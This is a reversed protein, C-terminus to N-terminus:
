GLDIAIEDLSEEDITASSFLVHTCLDTDIDEPGFRGKGPRNIAGNTFYCIRAFDTM